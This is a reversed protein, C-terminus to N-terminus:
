APEPHAAAWERYWRISEDLGEELRLRPRYGLAALRSIDPCRRPTGGARLPTPVIRIALGMRRAITEALERITVEEDTGIHYVTRDAGHDLVLLLGQIFDHVNNFARTESGDGQIPFDLTTGPAAAAAARHLRVVFEPIVHEFGMDPGYVNHPRFVVTRAFHKRGYNFALIEGILKAGAYSYRPNLVDPISGPADEPTPVVAPTQYIESSSAYVYERVGCQVAAELTNLTGKIGVELVTEPIEYFHRTGNIFALHCVVDVGRVADLVAARDRVDAEVLEIREVLDAGLKDLSGRFNNDMVRVREGRRVLARVLNSGLFGTGGTVLYTKDRVSAM